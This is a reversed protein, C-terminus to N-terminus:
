APSRQRIFDKVLDVDNPLEFFREEREFLDSLHSPLEPVVGVANQVASPFKAPHATSLSVTPGADDRKARQAITAAVGVASHPDLLYAQNTHLKKITAATEAEDVRTALFDKRIESLSLNDVLFAGTEALSTMHGVVKSADRGGASYLLREFNSSVQIDMSPSMTPVVSQVDYRGTTVCRMLIDNVNTAIILQGVFAGMQKAAYGAYIDGFNGTPVSFNIRRDSHGGLAISSSFYYVCQAMIRAWNISNVGSLNREDRFAADNFLAKVIAQADDFTGEIAINHVNDDLVTTMQRRQVESVRGKPHFIFVDLGDRGRLAEIAASGTDGSTAGIITAKLNREVLLHSLLPGIFQMAVDKFALTPGHFLEMLWHDPGIQRLPAILDNSFGSYADFVIKEFVDATIDDGVFPSLIRVALDPYSLKEFSALDQASFQPWSDPVYLGGDRALGTMVVDAFSLDPAGGRTSVYKM